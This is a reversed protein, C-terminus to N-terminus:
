DTLSWSNNSLIDSHRGSRTTFPFFFLPPLRDKPRGTLDKKLITKM